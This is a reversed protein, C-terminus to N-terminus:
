TTREKKKKHLSFFYDSIIITCFIISASLMIFKASTSIQLYFILAEEAQNFNSLAFLIGINEFYDLIVTFVILLLGTDKFKSKHSFRLILLYFFGGYFLPFLMDLSTSLYHLFRAKSTFNAFYAQYVSESSFALSDLLGCGCSVKLAPVIVLFFILESLLLLGGLIVLRKVSAPKAITNICNLLKM